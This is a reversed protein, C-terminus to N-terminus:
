LTKHYYNTWKHNNQDINQLLLTLTRSIYWMDLWATTNSLLISMWKVYFSIIRWRTCWVNFLLRFLVFFVFWMVVALSYARWWIDNLRVNRSCGTVTQCRRFRLLLFLLFMLLIDDNRLHTLTIVLIRDNSLLTHAFVLFRCLLSLVIIIHLTCM